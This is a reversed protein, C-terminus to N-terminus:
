TPGDKKKKISKVACFIDQFMGVHYMCIIKQKSLRLAEIDRIDPNWVRLDPSFCRLTDWFRSIKKIAIVNTKQVVKKKPISEHLEFIADRISPCFIDFFFFMRAMFFFRKREM